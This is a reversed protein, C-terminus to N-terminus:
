LHAVYHGTSIVRLALSARCLVPPRLMQFPARREGERWRLEGRGREMTRARASEREREEAAESGQKSRKRRTGM